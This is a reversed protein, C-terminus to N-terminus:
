NFPTTTAFCVIDNIGVNNLEKIMEEFTSGTTCIDDIILIKKGQANLEDACKKRFDVLEAFNKLKLM